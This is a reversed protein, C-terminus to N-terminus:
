TSREDGLREGLLDQGDCAVALEVINGRFRKSTRTAAGASAQLGRKSVV